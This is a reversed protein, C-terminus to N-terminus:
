RMILGIIGIILGIAGVIYGWLNSAGQKQGDLSDLRKEIQSFKDLNSKVLQDSESRTMFTLAQDKLSARFENMGALRDNSTSLASDLAKNQAIFRQEDRLDKEQLVREFYQHLSDINWKSM